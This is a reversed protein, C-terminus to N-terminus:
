VTNWFDDSVKGVKRFGMLAYKRRFFEDCVSEIKAICIAWKKQKLLYAQKDSASQRNFARCVLKKLEDGKMQIKWM